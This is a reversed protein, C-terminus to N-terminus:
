ENRKILTELSDDDLFFNIKGNRIDVEVEIQSDLEKLTAINTTVFNSYYDDEDEFEEKDITYDNKLIEALELLTNADNEKKVIAVIYDTLKKILEDELYNYNQTDKKFLGFITENSLNEILILREYISPRYSDIMGKLDNQIEDLELNGRNDYYRYKTNILDELFKKFGLYYFINLYKRANDYDQMEKEYHWILSDLEYCYRYNIKLEENEYRRQFEFKYIEAVKDECNKDIYNEAIYYARALSISDNVFSLLYKTDKLIEEGKETAIYVYPLDFNEINDFNESIRNILIPKTGTIKFGSNKLIERLEPLKKKHISIDFQDTKILINEKILKELSNMIEIDNNAFMGSSFIEKGVVRGVNKHLVVLDHANVMM